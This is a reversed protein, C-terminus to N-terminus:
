QPHRTTRLSNALNAGTPEVGMVREMEHRVLLRAFYFWLRFRPWRGAIVFPRGEYLLETESM